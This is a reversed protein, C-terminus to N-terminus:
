KRGHLVMDECLECKGDVTANCLVGPLNKSRAEALGKQRDPHRCVYAAVLQTKWESSKYLVPIMAADVMMFRCYLPNIKM